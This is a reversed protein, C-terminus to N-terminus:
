LHVKVTKQLHKKMGLVRPLFQYILDTIFKTFQKYSSVHKLLEFKTSLCM